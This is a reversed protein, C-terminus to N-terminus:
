TRCAHWSGIRRNAPTWREDRPERCCRSDHEGDIEALPVAALPFRALYARPDCNHNTSAVFVNNVDLLLGCGTRRALEALFDTEEIDSEAFLLYTAPNELLMEGPGELPYDKRQPHGQWEDPMLIRRLDPHGDFHIGMLDWAEREQFEAGPWVPVLSPLAAVDRPTQAKVVLPPGGKTRCLHYVMEFHDGKGLYDVATASALYDYGLDDRLATAVAILQDPQVILGSFGERTDPQIADGFRASLQNLAEDTPTVSEATPAHEAM